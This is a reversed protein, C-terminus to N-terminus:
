FTWIVDTETFIHLATSHYLTVAVRGSYRSSMGAYINQRFRAVVIKTSVSNLMTVIAAIQTVYMLQTTQSRVGNAM